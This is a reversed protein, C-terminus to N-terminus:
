PIEESDEKSFCILDVIIDPKIKNYIEQLIKKERKDVVFHNKSDFKNEQRSLSYIKTILKSSQLKKVLALGVYRTGGLVLVKM